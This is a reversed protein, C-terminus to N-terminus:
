YSKTSLLFYSPSVAKTKDRAATDLRARLGEGESAPGSPAWAKSVPVSKVVDRRRFM